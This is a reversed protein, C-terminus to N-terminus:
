RGPHVNGRVGRAGGGIFRDGLHKLAIEFSIDGPLREGIGNLWAATVSPKAGNASLPLGVHVVEKFDGGLGAIGNLLVGLGPHPRAVQYLLRGARPTRAERPTAETFSVPKPNAKVQPTRAERLTAEPFPPARPLAGYM